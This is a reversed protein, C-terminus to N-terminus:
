PTLVATLDTLAKSAKAFISSDTTKFLVAGGLISILLVIFPVAKSINRGLNQTNDELGKKNSLPKTVANVTMYCCKNLTTTLKNMM